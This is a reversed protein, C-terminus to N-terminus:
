KRFSTLINDIKEIVKKISEYILVKGELVILIM